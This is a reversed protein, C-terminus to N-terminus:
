PAQRVVDASTDLPTVAVNDYFLTCEGVGGTYAALAIGGSAPARASLRRNVIEIGDVCVRCHPGRMEVRLHHWVGNEPVISTTSVTGTVDNREVLEGAMNVSLTVLNSGSATELRVLGVRTSRSVVDFWTEATLSPTAIPLEEYAYAPSANGQARAAWSGAFVDQQQAVLGINATWASLDGSEFGDAFVTSAAAPALTVVVVGISLLAGLAIVVFGKRRRGGLLGREFPQLLGRRDM